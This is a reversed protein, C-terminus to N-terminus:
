AGEARTGGGLAASLSHPIGRPGRVAFVGFEDRLRAFPFESRDYRQLLKLRMLARIRLRDGEYRFPLDTKTVACRYLVASVPAAVYLFVTDGERIGAGQKWDIEDIGDFAHEIDYYKPNAPVIWEKAERIRKQKRKSATVAYSEDIRLCLEEFPVTGDLLVSVWHGRSIHYGYFYGPQQALFDVFFPDELKVNMIEARGEGSLGLKNREVDMFLVFWKRNDEHRVVPYGPASPFPYDPFLGYKTRIYEFLKERMTKGNKM